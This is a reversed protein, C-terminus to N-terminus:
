KEVVEGAPMPACNRILADINKSVQRDFWFISLVLASVLVFCEVSPLFKSM